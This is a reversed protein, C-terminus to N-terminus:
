AAARKTWREKDRRIKTKILKKVLAATLPKEPTFRITGKSTEFSKLEKEHAAIPGAGPFFSCHNKFGAYSALMRNNLKFTPIQYSILEKADPVLDRITQRLQELARRSEQPLRALYEDVEKRGESDKGRKM